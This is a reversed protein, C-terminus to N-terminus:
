AAFRSWVVGAAYAVLLVLGALGYAIRKWRRITRRSAEYEDARGDAYAQVSEALMLGRREVM